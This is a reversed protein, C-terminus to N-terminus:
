SCALFPLPRATSLRHFTWSLCRRRRSSQRPGAATRLRKRGRRRLSPRGLRIAGCGSTIRVMEHEPPADRWLGLHNLGDHELVSWTQRTGSRAPSLPAAAAAGGAARGRGGGGAEGGGAAGQLSFVGQHKPAAVGCAFATSYSANRSHSANKHKEGSSGGPPM